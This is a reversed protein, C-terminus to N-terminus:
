PSSVLDLKDVNLIVGVMCNSVADEAVSGTVQVQANEPLTQLYQKFNASRVIFTSTKDANSVIVKGCNELDITKVTGTFKVPQANTAGNVARDTANDYVKGCNQYTMILGFIAILFVGAIYKSM